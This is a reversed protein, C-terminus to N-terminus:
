NDNCVHRWMLVFHCQVCLCLWVFIIVFLFLIKSIPWVYEIAFLPLLPLVPLPSLVCCFLYCYHIQLLLRIIMTMMMLLMLTFWVSVRILCFGYDSLFFECRCWVCVSCFLALSLSVPICGCEGLRLRLAFLCFCCSLAINPFIIKKPVSVLTVCVYAAQFKCKCVSACMHM